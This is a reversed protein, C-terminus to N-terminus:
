PKQADLLHQALVGDIGARARQRLSSSEYGRKHFRPCAEATECRRSCFEVRFGPLQSGTKENL